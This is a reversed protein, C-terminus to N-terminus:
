MEVRAKTANGPVYPHKMPVRPINCLDVHVDQAQVDVQVPIACYTKRKLKQERMSLSIAHLGTVLYSSRVTNPHPLPRFDGIVPHNGSSMIEKHIQLVQM